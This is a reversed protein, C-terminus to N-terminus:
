RDADTTRPLRLTVCTGPKRDEISVEGGLLSVTWYVLWLGLGTGHRLPTEEGTEITAREQEPIGSGNDIIIIDVWEGSRGAEVPTATIGVRPTPRDNHDAANNLLETLAVALRSDAQVTIPDIDAVSLEADPYSERFEGALTGFLARLDVTAEPPPEHDFLSDITGAKRSLDALASARDSISDVFSRARPDDIREGLLDANGEIVNMGNRLNHRLVRNLVSLQQERLRQDTVDSEISVFHTIEGDADTIPSIEQEVRYLEGSQRKNVITAEWRRGDLITEWLDSYFGAPQNGSKLIRPTRGVAAERSYGTQDVFTPNVYEIVGERDTIAVAQGVNEVAKRFLQLQQERETRETVDRASLVVAERGDYGLTSGSVELRRREGSKTRCCLEGTAGSRSGTASDTSSEGNADGGAPTAAIVRDLFEQLSEEGDILERPDTARLQQRSYGSLESAAPNCEILEDGEPTVVLLADNTSDFLRQFRLRSNAYKESLEVSQRRRALLNELRRYLTSRDIPATVVEDILPPEADDSQRVTTRKSRRLLVVPCFTPHQDATRAELASRSAPLARDGVLYCDAPRVTEDIVVEYRAELLTTLAERDGDGSVLLQIRAPEDTPEEVGPDGNAHESPEERRPEGDAHDTPQDAM